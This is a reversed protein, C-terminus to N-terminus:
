HRNSRALQQAVILFDDLPRICISKALSFVCIRALALRCFIKIKVLPEVFAANRSFPWLGPFKGQPALIKEATSNRKGARAPL